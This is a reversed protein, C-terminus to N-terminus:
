VNEGLRADRVPQFERQEGHLVPEARAAEASRSPGAVKTTPWDSRRPMRVKENGGYAACMMEQDASRTRPLSDVTFCASSVNMPTLGEIWAIRASSASAAELSAFTRIVPSLPTPLSTALRTM